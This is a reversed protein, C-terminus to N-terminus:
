PELYVIETPNWIRPVWTTNSLGASVVLRGKYVGKTYRPWWGQGPAWAGHNFVRWQGGHAHGSLVLEISSPILPLYEPHHSLLIHYGPASSYEKLWATEPKHRSAAVAGSIGSISEQRPYRDSSGSEARFRRYDTVYGSTLGALIVEKGDVTISKWENDLVTVGTATLTALDEQDMMWEHNGLSLFTPVIAACASLFPLVNTQTELPSRDGEPRGGYLVDGTICILSPRNDAVPM